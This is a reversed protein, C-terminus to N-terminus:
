KADGYSPRDPSPAPPRCGLKKAASQVDRELRPWPCTATTARGILVYDTGPQAMPLLVTRAAARLRRKVRNRVVANGLKKTATVGIRVAGGKHRSPIAQVVVTPLAAKRGQRSARVFDRRERLPELRAM